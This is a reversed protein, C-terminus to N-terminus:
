LRTYSTRRTVLAHFWDISLRRCIVMVHFDIDNAAYPYDELTDIFTKNFHREVFVHLSEENYRIQHPWCTAMVFSLIERAIM